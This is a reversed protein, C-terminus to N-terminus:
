TFSEGNDGLLRIFKGNATKIRAAVSTGSAQGAVSILGTEYFWFNGNLKYGILTGMEWAAGTRTVEVTLDTNLTISETLEALLGVRITSPASDVTRTTTILTMANVTGPPYLELEAMAIHNAAGDQVVNAWVYDWSTAIDTSLITRGASEDATDVFSISGLATGDTGNAPAGGNKGYLTITVNPNIVNVFGANNSGYVKASIIRKPSASLNAGFYASTATSLWASSAIAQSTNGDFAAAITNMSPSAIYSVVSLKTGTPITPTVRKNVPDYNYNTSSGSNIGDSGGFGDVVGNVIFQRAGLARSARNHALMLSRRDADSLNGQVIEDWAANKRGYQKGDSPADGIINAALVGSATVEAVKAGGVAIGVGDTTKYLGVGMMSNFALSPAAATGDTLRIPAGMPASGDRPLSNTLGQAIDELPPNHQSPLITQGAVALYGDVLTFNGNSDRPM